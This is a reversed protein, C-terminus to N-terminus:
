DTDQKRPAKKTRPPMKVSKTHSTAAPDIHKSLQILTEEMRRMRDDINQLRLGLQAVDEKSPINMLSLQKTMQESIASQIKLQVQTALNASKSFEDTGMMTNAFKDVNQEWQSILSRWIDTPDNSSQKSM